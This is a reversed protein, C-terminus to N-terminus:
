LSGSVRGAPARNLSQMPLFCTMAAAYARIRERRTVTGTNEGTFPQETGKRRAVDFQEPTLAKEWEKDTKIVKDTMIYGKKAVSYIKIQFVSSSDAKESGLATKQVAYEVSVFIVACTLLLSVSVTTDCFYRIFIM